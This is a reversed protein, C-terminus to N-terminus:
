LGCFNIRTIRNSKRWRCNKEYLTWACRSHQRNRNTLGKDKATNGELSEWITTAGSKPMYLWGPLEENELLKYAYEVDLGALIELIFPTSLFGTGLRWGYNEMAKVLRKKAYETQEETLIGMYLPRVLKAQRDTDLSTKKKTVFEQYARKAGESYKKIRELQKDKPKGLIDAVEM